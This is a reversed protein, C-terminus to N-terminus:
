VARANEAAEEELWEVLSTAPIVIKRAGLRVCPLPHQDRRLLKDVIPLSSHLVQAVQKRTYATDDM